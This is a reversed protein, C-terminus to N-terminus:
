EKVPLPKPQQSLLLNVLEQGYEQRRWAGLNHIKELDPLTLPNVNALEWLAERPLIMDSAIGRQLAREKRWQRLLEYRIRVAETPGSTVPEKPPPYNAATEVVGILWEAHQSIQSSSLQCSRALDDTTAPMIRAVALLDEDRLIKFPPVDALRARDERTLWLSQMVSLSASPLRRVGQIAWFGDPDFPTFTHQSCARALREFEEKAEQWRGLQTLQAYLNNRLPHLFHSDMRAYDLMEPPLPRKGWNARQYKKSITIAFLTQLANALGTQEWGLARVALMTDFINHACWGFDRYLGILDYEAAHFIKEIQPNELIDGFGTLDLSDLPDLIYDAQATSVQILCVKERYAHISNAETDVGISAEQHLQAFLADAQIQTQILIPPNL